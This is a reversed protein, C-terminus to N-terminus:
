MSGLISLLAYTIVAEEPGIAADASTEISAVPERPMSARVETRPRVTLSPSPFRVEADDGFHRMVDDGEMYYFAKWHPPHDPVEIKVFLHCVHHGAKRVNDAIGSVEEDDKERFYKSHKFDGSTVAKLFKLDADNLFPDSRTM